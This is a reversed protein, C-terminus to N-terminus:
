KSKMSRTPDTNIYKDCRFFKRGNNKDSKKKVGRDEKTSDMENISPWNIKDQFDSLSNTNQKPYTTNCYRVNVAKKIQSTQDAVLWMWHIKKEEENQIMYKEDTENREEGEGM